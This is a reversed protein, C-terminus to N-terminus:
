SPPSPHRHPAARDRPQPRHRAPRREALLKAMNASFEALLARAVHVGGANAFTELPGSMTFSGDVALETM